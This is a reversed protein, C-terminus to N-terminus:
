EIQIQIQAPASVTSTLQALSAKAEAMRHPEVVRRSRWLLNHPTVTPPVFAVVETEYGAAELILTRGADVVSQIFRRRVEAHRPLGMASALRAAFPGASVSKSTCCPALLLHRARTLVAQEIITDAAPGCAHLAVVLDPEAPWVSATAVDAEEVTIDVGPARLAAAALRCSDARANDREIITLQGSCARRALVLEAALLGVYAKGAAADVIRISKGKASNGLLREIESLMAAVETVKKRDERRLTAKPDAIYLRHLAEEVDSLSFM